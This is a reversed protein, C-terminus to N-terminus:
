ETMQGIEMKEVIDKFALGTVIQVGRSIIQVETKFM